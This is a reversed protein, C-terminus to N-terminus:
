CLVRKETEYCNKEGNESCCNNVILLCGFHFGRMFVVIIVFSEKKLGGSLGGRESQSWSVTERIDPASSKRSKFAFLGLSALLMCVYVYPLIYYYIFLSSSVFAIRRAYERCQKHNCDVGGSRKLESDMRRWSFTEKIQFRWVRCQRMLLALSFPGFDKLLACISICQAPGKNIKLGWTNSITPHLFEWHERVNEKNCLTEHSITKGRNEPSERESHPPFINECYNIKSSIPM